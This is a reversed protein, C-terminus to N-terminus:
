VVIKVLLFFIFMIFFIVRSLAWSQTPFSLKIVLWNTLCSDQAQPKWLHLWVLELLGLRTAVVWEILCVIMGSELPRHPLLGRWSQTFLSATVSWPRSLQCFTYSCALDVGPMVCDFLISWNWFGHWPVVIPMYKWFWHYFLSHCVCTHFQAARQLGACGQLMCFLVISRLCYLSFM